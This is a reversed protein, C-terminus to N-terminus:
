ELQFRITTQVWTKVAEGQVTGPKFRWASVCRYVSQDFIEEPESEIVEVQDVLGQETVLFKVNVWGEIGMRKARMPYVPPVQALPTLPGDLDGVSYSEKFGSFDFAAMKLPYTPLTGPGAPLKPNLQFPLTPLKKVVQQHLIPKQVPKKDPKKEAEPKKIERKKPPVDERKIRIVDVMNFAELHDPKGPTKAILQPLLSFFALNLILSFIIAGTWSSLFKVWKFPVQKNQFM